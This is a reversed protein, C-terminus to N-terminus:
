QFGARRAFTHLFDTGGMMSTADPLREVIENARFSPLFIMQGGAIMLTNTAVFLGHTHFVPLAHLLVDADTFGWLGALVEANSLLNAHSLMAGKARGTTGSTYLIAALDEPDRNIADFGDPQKNAQEMLSGGGVADLTQLDASAASAIPGLAESADPDCVLVRPEANEVFYAVENPTYANNLPLFVGGAKVAGLYLALGQWSKNIQAAVRDGPSLGLTTLANALQNVMQDFQRYSVSQDDALKLFTRDNTSHVGLLRDYLHNPM